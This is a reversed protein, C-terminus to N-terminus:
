RKNSTRLYDPMIIVRKAVPLLDNNTPMVTIEGLMNLINCIDTLYMYYYDLMRQSMWPFCFVSKGYAYAIATMCRYKENGTGSLKREFREDTIDFIDKVLQVSLDSNENHKLGKTIMDAVTRHKSFLPNSRDIYCCHESLQKISIEKGAIYFRSEENLMIKQDKCLGYMSLAYSLSWGGSDIDGLLINTGKSLKCKMNSVATSVSCMESASDVYGRFAEILIDTM